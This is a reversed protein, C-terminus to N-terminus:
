ENKKRSVIVRNRIQWKFMMQMWLYDLKEKPSMESLPKEIHGDFMRDIEKNNVPNIKKLDKM